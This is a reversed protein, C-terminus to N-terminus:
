PRLFLVAPMANFADTWQGHGTAVPRGSAGPFRLHSAARQRLVLDDIGTDRIWATVALMGLEHFNDIEGGGMFRVVNGGLRTERRLQPRPKWPEHLHWDLEGQILRAYTRMTLALSKPPEGPPSASGFLGERTSFDVLSRDGQRALSTALLAAGQINSSSYVVGQQAICYEDHRAFEGQSGDPWVSYALWEMFYRQGSAVLVNDDLLIGAAGVALAVASKRNNYWQSLSSVRPGLRGTGEVYARALWPGPLDKDDIECDANTDFRRMWYRAADPGPAADHGRARYDGSERRPFLLSSGFDLHAAMFRANRAIFAEITIRDEAPLKPRVFDYAVVYRSLWSAEVFHADLTVGDPLTICLTSAFDNLPNAADRLLHARVAALARPEGTLLHFFAADRIRSGHTARAEQRMGANWTPEGQLVLARASQAIRDWDGPSGEAYDGARVFPGTDIRSRWQAIERESAFM